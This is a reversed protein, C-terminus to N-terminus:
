NRFVKEEVFSTKTVIKPLKMFAFTTSFNIAVFQKIEANGNTDLVVCLDDPSYKATSVSGNDVEIWTSTM